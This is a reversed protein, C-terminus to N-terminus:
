NGFTDRWAEVIEPIGKRIEAVTLPIVKQTALPPEDPRPPVGVLLPESGDGAVLRSYPETFLWEMFLRAANPHPARAPIASPTVCLALGDTPHNTGIPNGKDIMQYTTNASAVAVHIEGATLLTVPDVASRGIRPNNKALKEFFEWGYLKRMSVCWVGTCGSFAPHGTGVFGKWRPDLLDTWKKPADEPKVHKTNYILFYRTANTVYYAGPESLASFQPMLRAANEPSFESLERREKLAPMHSIDTTSFVDCQPTKNKIDLLLRQYAVQGTTRIVSVKVGPYQATFMRGLREATEANTQGTYWTLSGEARAADELTKLDARAVRPLGAAFAAAIAGAGAHRRGPDSSM